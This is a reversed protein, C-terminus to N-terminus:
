RPLPSLGQEAAALLAAADAGDDPSVALGMRLGLGPVAQTLTDVLETVQFALAQRGHQPTEDPRRRRAWAVALRATGLRAGQWGKPLQTALTRGLQGLADPSVTRADAPELIAVGGQADQAGARALLKELYIHFTDAKLLGTEPDRLALRSLHERQVAARYLRALIQVLSTATERAQALPQSVGGPVSLCVVAFTDHSERVPLCLLADAAPIGASLGTAELCLTEGTHYARQAMAREDDCRDAAPGGPGLVAMHRGPHGQGVVAALDLRSAERNWTFLCGRRGAIGQLIVEAGRRLLTTGDALALDALACAADLVARRGGDAAAPPAAPAPETKPRGALVAPLRYVDDPLVFYDAAGERLLARGRPEDEAKVVLYVRVGPMTRRLAALLDRESGEVDELNIVIARPPRRATALVAEAASTHTEAGPALRALLARQAPQRCIAIV